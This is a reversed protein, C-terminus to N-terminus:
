GTLPIQVRFTTGAGPSSEVEIKGNYTKVIESVITLGLGCGRGIDKTSYFPEFIQEIKDAEIGCGTDKVELAIANNECATRVIIAGQKQIADAANRILNVVVRELGLDPIFPLDAALSASISIDKPLLEPQITQIAQNVAWNVDLHQAMAGPGRSCALLNKVIGAMRNLGHKVELLYGRAVEEEGLHELCLNTYRMVGDLPNNFEHAIGGALKGISALKEQLVVKKKLLDAEQSSRGLEDRLTKSEKLVRKFKQYLRIRQYNLAIQTALFDLIQLEDQSFRAESEKDTINIIGVLKDKILLPACIFSNTKYSKRAKYNKFRDDCSIDDVVMPRKMEAVKGVVGEGMRKVLAAKDEVAMGQASRLVLELSDDDRTIFISGRKAGFILLTKQLSQELLEEEDLVSNVIACVDNIKLFLEAPLAAASHAKPNPSM